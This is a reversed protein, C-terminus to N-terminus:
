RIRFRHMRILPMLVLTSLEHKVPNHVISIAGINESLLPTPASISLGFNKLLWSLWTVEVTLLTIAHM